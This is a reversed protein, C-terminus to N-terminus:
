GGAIRCFPGPRRPPHGLRGDRSRFAGVSEVTGAASPADAGFPRRRARGRGSRRRSRAPKGPRSALARSRSGTLAPGTESRAARGSAPGGLASRDDYLHATLGARAAEIAAALGAPGGGVVAIQPTFTMLLTWM